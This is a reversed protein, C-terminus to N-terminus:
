GEAQAEAAKAARVAEAKEAAKHMDFGNLHCDYCIWIEEDEEMVAVVDDGRAGMVEAIAFAASRNEPRGLGMMQAMGLQENIADPKLMALRIEIIRFPKQLNGGCHDCPRLESIAIKRM